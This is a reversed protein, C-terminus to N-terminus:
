IHRLVLCLRFGVRQRAFWSAWKYHINPLVWDLYLVKKWGMMGPGCNLLGIIKALDILHGVIENAEKNFPM